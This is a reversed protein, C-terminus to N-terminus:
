VLLPGGQRPGDKVALLNAHVYPIKNEKHWASPFDTHLDSMQLRARLMPIRPHRDRDTLYWFSNENYFAVASPDQFAGRGDTSPTSTMILGGHALVRHCENFFAARDGVYQLVDTAIILGVSDDPYALRPCSPDIVASTASAPRDRRSAVAEVAVVALGHRGAWAAALAEINARYYAVTRQQIFRNTLTDSQTNKGHMRQVYLCRDVHEFEGAMFLRIMLDHDDLVRLRQDYGGVADYASRQFARVHNPAYWIYGVNHPFPELAHCRAFTATGIKEDSYQWGMAPNFRGDNPSLDRNMQAFDSYVLTAASNAAFADHVDELCTPTIVDDHDLEVLIDGRARHCALRKAAGVGNVANDRIVVVREDARPPLWDRCEQNLVVVWEWDPMTQALLSRYCDGLYRSDHSPTFVSVHM